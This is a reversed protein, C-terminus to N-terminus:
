APRDRKRIVFRMASTTPSISCVKNDVVGAQSGAAILEQQNVYGPQDRKPTLLWIAGTPKLHSRWRKLVEVADTTQDISVLVVDVPKDGTSAPQEARLLIRERLSPDIQAPEEVFTVCMGPKIGLKEVTERQQSANQLSRQDM